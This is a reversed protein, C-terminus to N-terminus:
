APRNNVPETLSQAPVGFAYSRHGRAIDVLDAVVASATAKGGAGIGQLFIAGIFDGSMEIGNAAGEVCALTETLPVFVPQIRQVIGHDTCTAIGLLKIRGGRAAANRIDDPTIQRIGEIFVGDMDPATGFAIAALISLKYAADMGDIDAAPDTEAYGLRQAEALATDFDVGKDGMRTLIYNSTGNLIGRISSLTNAAMGERLTKLLPIGGCVAPEFALQLGNKEALRALKVGHTAIMAKNATVLHKGNKLSAQALDYAVGSAGGIVEVVVDVDERKALDRADDVWAIGTLDGDRKKNKDRASVATVRLEQGCRAKLLPAHTQILRLTAAGTNGLGAIAIRM